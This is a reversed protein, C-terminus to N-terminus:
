GSTRSFSGPETSDIAEALRAVDERGVDMHTVFRLSRPRQAMARIRHTELRQRLAEADFAARDLRAYVINTEIEDPPCEIGHRGHLTRAVERALAHDEALRDVNKELAYLGAAALIGAQRMWGGLRKRVPKAKEIFDLSGAVVSGVPAGLGKSLCVSVSDAYSAWTEAPIGSAVVAHFLRAGDMHVPIRAERAVDRVRALSEEPVVLGGAARGSGMFSQEVCLLSTRACHTSKMRIVSRIEDPDLRGDEAHLTLTQVGHLYGPAGGEWAVIHGSREIVIEDGPRTWVGLAIQNGMTGSPVFMAGEKGLLAAVKAELKQVTPDGDLVDDGVEAEAMAKRMAPSPKTVTDSRFDSIKM